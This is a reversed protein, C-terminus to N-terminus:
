VNGDLLAAVFCVNEAGDAEADAVFEAHFSGRM